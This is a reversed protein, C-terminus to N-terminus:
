FQFVLKNLAALCLMRNRNEVGRSAMTTATTPGTPMALDTATCTPSLKLLPNLVGRATCTSIPTPLMDLPITDMFLMTLRLRLMLRPRPRLSLSLLLMLAGRVMSSGMDTTAVTGPHTTDMFLTTLRLMLRQRRRLSLLLMLAGREMSSGMDTTAVTGPHTTDMSLTTLRLMLRQRRRLSLLQMLAGREMSSGMDTTAVTGPHTTDM